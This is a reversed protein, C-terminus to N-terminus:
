NPSKFLRALTALMVLKAGDRGKLTQVSAAKRECVGGKAFVSTPNIFIYKKASRQTQTVPHILSLTQVSISPSAPSM